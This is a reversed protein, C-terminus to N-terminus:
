FSADPNRLFESEETTSIRQLIENRHPFRGFRRIVDAHRRAYAAFNEFASRWPAPVERVLAECRAVAEEQAVLDESHELPLYLFVREVPRLATEVDTDLLERSVRMAHADNQFARPTGRGIVRSLQDLVVVLALHARGRGRWSDLAGREAADLLGGFREIIERDHELHHEFWLPAQRQAVRRDDLDNGFWYEL